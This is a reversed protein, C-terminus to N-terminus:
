QSTHNQEVCFYEGMWQEIKEAVDNRGVTNARLCDCLMEWTLPCQVAELRHTLMKRLCKSNHDHSETESDICQLTDKDLKLQMGIERWKTRADYLKEYAASLDDATSNAIYM